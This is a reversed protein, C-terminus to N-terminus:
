SKIIRARIRSLSVPTIGLYSALYHQPIQAVINPHEELLREYRQQPTDKIRSLFLQVYKQAVLLARKTFKCMLENDAALAREIESKEFVEVETPLITELTFESPKNHVISDFSSVMQGPMFFQLTIDVGDNNFWLRACGSRILYSNQSIDGANLLVTKAPLTLRRCPIKSLISEIM